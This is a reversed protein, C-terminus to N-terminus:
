VMVFGDCLSLMLGLFVMVMFVVWIWWVCCVLVVIIVVLRSMLLRVM